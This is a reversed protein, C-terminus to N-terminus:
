GNISGREEERTKSPFWRLFKLGSEILAVHIYTMSLSSLTSLCSAERQWREEKALRPPLTRVWAGDLWVLIRARTSAGFVITASWFWSSFCLYIYSSHGLQIHDSCADNTMWISWSPRGIFIFHFCVCNFNFNSRKSVICLNIWRCILVLILQSSSLWSLGRSFQSVLIM